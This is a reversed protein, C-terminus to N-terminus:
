QQQFAIRLTATGKTMTAARRTRDDHKEHQEARERTSNSSVSESTDSGGGFGSSM